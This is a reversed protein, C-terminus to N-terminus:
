CAVWCAMDPFISCRAQIQELSDDSGLIVTGMMTHIVINPSMMERAQELNGQNYVKYFQLIIAKNQEEQPNVSMEKEIAGTYKLHISNWQKVETLNKCPNTLNKYNQRVQKPTM